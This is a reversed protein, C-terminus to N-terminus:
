GLVSTSMEGVKSPHCASDVGGRTLKITFLTEFEPGKPGLGAVKVVLGVDPKEM